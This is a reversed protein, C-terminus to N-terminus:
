CSVACQSVNCDRFSVFVNRSGHHHFVSRLSPSREANHDLRTSLERPFWLKNYVGEHLLTNHPLRVPQPQSPFIRESNRLPHSCLINRRQFSWLGTLPTRIPRTPTDKYEPLCLDPTRRFETRIPTQSKGQLSVHKKDEQLAFTLLTDTPSRRGRPGVYLSDHRFASLRWLTSWFELVFIRCGAPFVFPCNKECQPTCSYLAFLGREKALKKKQCIEALPDQFPGVWKSSLRLLRTKHEAFELPHCQRGWGAWPWAGFYLLLGPRLEWSHVTHFYHHHDMARPCSDHQPGNRQVWQLFTRLSLLICWGWGVRRHWDEKVRQLQYVLLPHAALFKEGWSM